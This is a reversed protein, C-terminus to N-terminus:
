VSIHQVAWSKLTKDPVCLGSFPEFGMYTHLKYRAPHSHHLNRLPVRLDAAGVRLPVVRHAVREVEGADRRGGVRGGLELPPEVPSRYTPVYSKLCCNRSFKIQNLIRKLSAPAELTCHILAMLPREQHLSCVFVVGNVVSNLDRELPVLPLDMQDSSLLLVEFLQKPAVQTCMLIDLKDPIPDFDTGNSPIDLTILPTPPQNLLGM